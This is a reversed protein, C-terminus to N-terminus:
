VEVKKAILFNKIAKNIFFKIKKGEKESLLVIKKYLDSAIRVSNTKENKM